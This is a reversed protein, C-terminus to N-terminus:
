ENIVLKGTWDYEAECEQCIDMTRRHWPENDEVNPRACAVLILQEGCADCERDEDDTYKEPIWSPTILNWNTM